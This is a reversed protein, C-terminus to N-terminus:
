YARWTWHDGHLRTPRTIERSTFRPWSLVSSQLLFMYLGLSRADPSHPGGDAMFLERFFHMIMTRMLGDVM